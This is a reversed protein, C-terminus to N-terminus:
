DLVVASALLEDERRMRQEYAAPDAVAKLHLVDDHDDYVELRVKLSAGMSALVHQLEGLRLLVDGEEICTVTGECLGAAAALEARDM